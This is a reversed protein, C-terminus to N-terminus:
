HSFNETNHSSYMSDSTLKNFSPGWMKCRVLLCSVCMVKNSMFSFHAYVNQRASKLLTQSGKVRKGRFPRRFCCSEPMWPVVNKPFLLEPFTLTILIMEKKLIRLIKHLNWFDLLLELFHKDKPSWQTPVQEPFKEGSHCSYMDDATLTNFPAGWMKSVVLLCSVSRVKNSM